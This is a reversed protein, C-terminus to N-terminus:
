YKRGKTGPARRTERVCKVCLCVFNWRKLREMRVELEADCDIYSVTVEEGVMLNRLPKVEMCEIELDWDLVANPCCSHNIRCVTEFVADEDGAVIRNTEWIGRVTDSRLQRTELADCHGNYLSLFKKKSGANLAHFKTLYEQTDPACRLLPKETLIIDKLSIKKKAFIGHGTRSNTALFEYLAAPVVATPPLLTMM